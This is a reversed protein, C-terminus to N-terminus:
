TLEVSRAHREFLQEGLHNELAKVQQSVASTSLDLLEGARAFNEMRAAAEFVRLWNLSPINAPM